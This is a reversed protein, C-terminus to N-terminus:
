RRSFMLGLIAFYGSFFFLAGVFPVFADYDTHSLTRTLIGSILAVVLIIGLRNTIDFPGIQISTM